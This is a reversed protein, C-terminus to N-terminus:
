YSADSERERTHLLEDNPSIAALRSKAIVLEAQAKAIEANLRSTKAKWTELRGTVSAGGGYSQSIADSRESRLRGIKGKWGIVKTRLEQLKGADESDSVPSELRSSPPLQALEVPRSPLAISEHNALEENLSERREEDRWQFRDQWSSDLDPAQVRAIGDKHRIELGVDTVRTIVVDQYERGGRISLTGVKQGVARAWTQSRYETRYRAFESELSPIESLLQDRSQQLDFRRKGLTVSKQHLDASASADDKLRSSFRELQQARSEHYPRLSELEGDAMTIERQIDSIGSSFRLRQDVLLSLGVGAMVLVIMGVLFYFIGPHDEASLM